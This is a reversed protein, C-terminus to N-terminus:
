TAYPPYNALFVKDLKPMLHLTLLGEGYFHETNYLQLLPRMHVLM